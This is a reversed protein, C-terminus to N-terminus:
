KAKWIKDVSGLCGVLVYDPTKIDKIMNKILKNIKLYYKLYHMEM